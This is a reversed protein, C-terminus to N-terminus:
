LGVKNIAKAIRLDVELGDLINESNIVGLSVAEKHLMEYIALAEKYSLNEESDLKRQLEDLKHKNQIMAQAFGASYIAFVLNRKGKIM